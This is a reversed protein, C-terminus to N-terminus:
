ISTQKRWTLPPSGITSYMLPSCTNNEGRLHLHDESSLSGPATPITKEVYTSTIRDRTFVMDLLGLKRWTLPPSGIAAQQRKQLEYNEGRLHLHDGVFAPINITDFTKEVYTSTIGIISTTRM